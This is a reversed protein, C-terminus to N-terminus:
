VILLVEVSRNVQLVQGVRQGWCAGDRAIVSDEASPDQLRKGHAQQYEGHEQRKQEPADDGRRARM